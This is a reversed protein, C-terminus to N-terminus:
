IAAIALSGISGLAVLVRILVWDSGLGMLTSSSQRNIVKAVPYTGQWGRDAEPRCVSRHWSVPAIFLHLVRNSQMTPSAGQSGLTM